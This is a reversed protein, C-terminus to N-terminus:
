TISAMLSLILSSRAPPKERPAEDVEGWGGNEGSVGGDGPEGDGPEGDGPEGALEDGECEEGELADGELADGDDFDKEVM